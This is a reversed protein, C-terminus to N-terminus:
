RGENNLKVWTHCSLGPNLLRAALLETTGLPVKWGPCDGKVREVRSLSGNSSIRDIKENSTEMSTRPTDSAPFIVTVADSEATAPFPSPAQCVSLLPPPLDEGMGASPRDTGNNDVSSRRSLKGPSVGAELEIDLPPETGSSRGPGPRTVELVSDGRCALGVRGSASMGVEPEAEREDGEGPHNSPM